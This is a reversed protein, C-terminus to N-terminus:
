SIAQKLETSVTVKIKM